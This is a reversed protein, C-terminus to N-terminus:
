LLLVVPHKVITCVFNCDDDDYDDVPLVYPLVSLFAFPFAFVVFALM